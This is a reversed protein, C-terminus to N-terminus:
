ENVFKGELILKIDNLTKETPDKEIKKELGAQMQAETFRGKQSGNVYKQFTGDAMKEFRTGKDAAKNAARRLDHGTLEGAFDGRTDTPSKSQNALSTAEEQSFGADMLRLVEKAMELRRALSAEAAADGSAQARIRAMEIQALKKKLEEQKTPEKGGNGGLAPPTLDNLDGVKKLIEAYASLSDEM